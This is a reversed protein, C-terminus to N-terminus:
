RNRAFGLWATLSGAGTVNGTMALYRDVTGAVTVREVAPAATVDSFAVLDAYTIDDASDRVTAIFGSFGSFATVHLYGVGGNLSNALVFSGGTGGSTSADVPVSFSTADIVTVTREGNIDANSGVVGSILIIQGTTLGHPVPTTVVSPNAQSNSTIPIVRQPETTRDVPTSETDWDATQPALPQLIVGRDMQGSVEYEANAKTLEGVIGLVEYSQQYTGLFGVFPSGITQGAFGLCVIRAAAQPTGPPGAALAAHGGNAATDFFGGGQAWEASSLGTPRKERWGDGLGTDDEQAAMVKHRLTKLKMALLNYGDVLCIASPSGYKAM